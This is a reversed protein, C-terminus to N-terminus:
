ECFSTLLTPDHDDHDDHDSQAQVTYLPIAVRGKKPRSISRSTQHDILVQGDLKKEPATAVARFLQKSKIMINEAVNIM